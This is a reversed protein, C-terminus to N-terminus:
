PFVSSCASSVNVWALWWARALAPLVGTTHCPVDRMIEWSDSDLKDHQIAISISSSWLTVRDLSVTM